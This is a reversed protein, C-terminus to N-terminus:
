RRRQKNPDMSYASQQQLLAQHQNHAANAAPVSYSYMHAAPLTYPQQQAMINMNMSLHDIGSNLMAQQMVPMGSPAPPPSVGVQRMNMNFNGNLDRQQSRMPTNPESYQAMQIQVQLPQAGEYIIAGNLAQTAYQAAPLGSIQVRGRGSCLGQNRPTIVPSTTASDSLEGKNASSSDIVDIQASLIRGYPALLDHLLAIDAYEPLNSISLTVSGSYQQAAVQPKALHHTVQPMQTDFNDISSSTTSSISLFTPVAMAQGQHAHGPMPHALQALMTAQPAAGGRTDFSTSALAPTFWVDNGNPAVSRPSQNSMPHGLGNSSVIAGIGMGMGGYNSGSSSSKFGNPIRTNRPSYRSSGSSSSSLLPDEVLSIPAPHMGWQMPNVMQMPVQAGVPVSSPIRQVAAHGGFGFSYPDATAGASAQMHGGHPSLPPGPMMGNALLMAATPNDGFKREKRKQQDEAFKVVLPRDGGRPRFGNLSLGNQAQARVNYQVFAVGRNIKTNPDRLV